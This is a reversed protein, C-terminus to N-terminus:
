TTEKQLDIRVRGLLVQLLVQLTLDHPVEVPTLDDCVDDLVHLPVAGVLVVGPDVDRLRKPISTM